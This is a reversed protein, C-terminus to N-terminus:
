RPIYKSMPSQGCRHRSRIKTLDCGSHFATGSNPTKQCGEGTWKGAALGLAVARDHTRDM